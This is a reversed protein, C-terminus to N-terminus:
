GGGRSLKQAPASGTPLETKFFDIIVLEDGTKAGSRVKSFYESRNDIHHYTNVKLVMDVKQEKFSPSDYPIKRVEINKLGDKEIRKKVFDFFGDDVDAAIVRAGKAALKVSFYGSGVGIDM